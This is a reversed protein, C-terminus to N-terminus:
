PLKQMSPPSQCYDAPTQMQHTQCIRVFHFFCFFTCFSGLYVFFMYMNNYVIPLSKPISLLLLILLCTVVYQSVHQCARFNFFKTYNYLKELWYKIWKVRESQRVLLGRTEEYVSYYPSTCTSYINLRRVIWKWILLDLQGGASLAAAIFYEYNNVPQVHARWIFGDSIVLPPSHTIYSNLYLNTKLLLMGEPELSM